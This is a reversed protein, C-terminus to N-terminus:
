LDIPIKRVTGWIFSVRKKFVHMENNNLISYIKDRALSTPDGAFRSGSWVNLGKATILHVRIFMFMPSSQYM